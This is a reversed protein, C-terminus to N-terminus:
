ARIMSATNDPSLSSDLYYTYGDVVMFLFYSCLNNDRHHNNYGCYNKDFFVAVNSAPKIQRIASIYLNYRPQGKYNSISAFAQNGGSVTCDVDIIRVDGKNRDMYIEITGRNNKYRFCATECEKLAKIQEKSFNTM